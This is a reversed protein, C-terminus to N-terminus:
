LGDLARIFARAELHEHFEYTHLCHVARRSSLPQCFLIDLPAQFLCM